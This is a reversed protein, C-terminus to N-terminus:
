LPAERKYFVLCVSVLVLIVGGRLDDGRSKVSIIARFAWPFGNSSTIQRLVM